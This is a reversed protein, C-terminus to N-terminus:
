GFYFVNQNEACAKYFKRMVSETQTESEFSINTVEVKKAYQSDDLWTMEGGDYYISVTNNFQTIRYIRNLPIVFRPSSGIFILM